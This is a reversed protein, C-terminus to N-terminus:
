VGPGSLAQHAPGGQVAGQEIPIQLCSGQQQLSTCGRHGGAVVLCAGGHKNLEDCHWPTHKCTNASEASTCPLFPRPLFSLCACVMRRFWVSRSIRLCMSCMCVRVRHCCSVPVYLFSHMCTGIHTSFVELASPKSVEALHYNGTNLMKRWPGHASKPLRLRAHHQGGRLWGAAHESLQLGRKFDM